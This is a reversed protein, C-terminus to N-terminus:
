VVYFGECKGAEPVSNCVRLCYLDRRWCFFFFAVNLGELGARLVYVLSYRELGALQIEFPEAFFCRFSLWAFNKKQAPM